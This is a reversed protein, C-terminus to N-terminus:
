LLSESELADLKAREEDTMVHGLRDRLAVLMDLPEYCLYQERTIPSPDEFLISQGAMYEALKLHVRDGKVTYSAPQFRIDLPYGPPFYTALHELTFRCYILYLRESDCAFGEAAMVQLLQRFVDTQARRREVNVKPDNRAMAEDLARAFLSHSTTVIDDHLRGDDHEVRTALIPLPPYPLSLLCMTRIERNTDQM